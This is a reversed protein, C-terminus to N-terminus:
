NNIEKYEFMRVKVQMSDDFSALGLINFVFDQTYKIKVTLVGESYSSESFDLGELGDKVGFSKLLEDADTPSLYLVYREKVVDEINGEKYWENSLVYNGGGANFADYLFPILDAIFNSDGTREIAYPDYSLSKASQVLANSMMQQGIFFVFFGNVLLMVSVFIPVVISAELTMSGREKKQM